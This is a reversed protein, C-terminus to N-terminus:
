VAIGSSELTKGPELVTSYAGKKAAEKSPDFTLQKSENSTSEDSKNEVPKNTEVSKDNEEPKNDNSLTSLLIRKGSLTPQTSQVDEMDGKPAVISIQVPVVKAVQESKYYNSEGINGAVSYIHSDAVSSIIDQLTTVDLGKLDNANITITGLPHAEGSSALIGTVLLIALSTFRLITM